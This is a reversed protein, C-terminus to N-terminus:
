VHGLRDTVVGTLKVADCNCLCAARAAFCHADADHLPQVCELIEQDLWAADHLVHKYRSLTACSSLGLNMQSRLANAIWRAQPLNVLQGVTQPGLIRGVSFQVSM